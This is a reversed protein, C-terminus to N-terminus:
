FYLLLQVVIKWFDNHFTPSTNNKWVIANKESDRSDDMSAALGLSNWFFAMQHSSEEWLEVYNGVELSWEQVEADDEDCYDTAGRFRINWRAVEDEPEIFHTFRMPQLGM